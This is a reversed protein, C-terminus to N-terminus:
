NVQRRSPALGFGSLMRVIRTHRMTDTQHHRIQKDDRIFGASDVMGFWQKKTVLRSQNILWPHNM